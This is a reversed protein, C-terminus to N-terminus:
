FIFREPPPTEPIEGPHWKEKLWIKDDVSVDSGQTKNIFGTTEVARVTEHSASNPDVAHLSASSFPATLFSNPLSPKNAGFSSASSLTSNSSGGFLSNPTGFTTSSQDSRQFITAQNLGANSSAVVGFGSGTNISSAPQGFTWVSPSAVNNM